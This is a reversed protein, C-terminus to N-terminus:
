YIVVTDFLKNKTNAPILNMYFKSGNDEPVLIGDVDKYIMFLLKLKEEYNKFRGFEGKKRMKFFDNAHKKLYKQQVLFKYVIVILINEIGTYYM